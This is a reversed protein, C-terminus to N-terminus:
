KVLIEYDFAETPFSLTLKALEPKSVAKSRLYVSTGGGVLSCSNPGMVEIPGSVSISLVDDAYPMISGFQDKKLIQVRTADYTAGNTLTLSGINIEYHFETSPGVSRSAFIKDDKYAKISWAANEEGWASMYKSYLQQVQTTSYHHKLVLIAMILKYKLPLRAFGNQACFNFAEKILRSERKSFEKEVFTDGIFDDIKIPAHPMNPFDKKNPFFKAVFTEGKYLEVYDADTFVYVPQMLAENFDGGQMLSAIEFTNNIHQSAYVYAAYKPNRFIDAVGHYCIHDDSGFDKHTNYDFACWSIEGTLDDLGYMDDMVRAHRLAHEVRRATPDFSKTPFMHGNNETVLKPAGKSKKWTSPKDLGHDTGACSFDNYSYIDELFESDKFNRVGTSKRFPDEEKQVKNILSYLEHDDPSEDIRLGYAVLCAHHREKKVLRRAFDVCTDRWEQKTSVFQWGPIEDLLLLGLKDCADLFSEDDAYHSTRVINIGFGKLIKADDEQLSKPAAAGFYPYTQHRNLGLLKVKKGNLFFGEEKWDLTRFGVNQVIHQEGYITELTYLYPDDISWPHVDKVVHELDIFEEKILSNPERLIFRPKINPDLKGYNLRLILRGDAYAVPYVDNIYANPLARISVGRYIGGFTLYDVIKGFPPILPNERSDLKVLLLNGKKKIIRSIDIDVPFYGSIHEGLDLGNLYVHITLMAGAFHLIKIPFSPNEDDFEKCYSFIGQYDNESFYHYPEVTVSHPIDILEASKPLGNSIYSEEFGKTFKWAFNIHQEM